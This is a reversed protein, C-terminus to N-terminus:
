FGWASGAHTRRRRIAGLGHGTMAAWYEDVTVRTAGDAFGIATADPGPVGRIQSYYYNWQWINLTGQGATYAPDKSAAALLRAKASTTDLAAPQPAPTTTDAPAPSAPPAATAGIALAAKIQDSFFLWALGGGILAYKLFDKM